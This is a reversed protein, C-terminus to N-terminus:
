TFYKVFISGTKKLPYNIRDCGADIGEYFASKGPRFWAM